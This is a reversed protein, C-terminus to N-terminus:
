KKPIFDIGDVVLVQQGGKNRMVYTVLAKCPAGGNEKIREYFTTPMSSKLPIYGLLGNDKDEKPEFSTTTIYHMTCGSLEDNSGEPKFSYPKGVSLITIEEKFM